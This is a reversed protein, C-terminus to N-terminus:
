LKISTLESGTIASVYSLYENALDELEQRSHFWVFETLIHIRVPDVIGDIGASDIYVGAYGNGIKDDWEEKTIPRFYGMITKEVYVNKM